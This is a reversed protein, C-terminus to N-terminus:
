NVKLETAGLSWKLAPGTIFGSGLAMAFQQTLSSLDLLPIPPSLLFTNITQLHSAAPLVSNFSPSHLVGNKKKSSLCLIPKVKM